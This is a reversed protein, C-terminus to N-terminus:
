RYKAPLRALEEDLVSSLDPSTAEPHAFLPGAQAQRECTRRRVRRRLAQWAVRCAVGHLYAALSGHNRLRVARPALVLFTAQFADEADHADGLLRRCVGLVMPGHREVLAAFAAEERTAVFRELLQSESAGAEAHLLGRTYHLVSNLSTRHMADEPVPS